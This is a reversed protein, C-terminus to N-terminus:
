LTRLATTLARLKGLVHRLPNPRKVFRRQIVLASRAGLAIRDILGLRGLTAAKNSLTHAFVYFAITQHPQSARWGSLGFKRALSPVDASVGEASRHVAILNTTVIKGKMALSAIWLWDGGLKNPLSLGALDSRRMLGYFTGNDLVQLYFALVREVATEQMLNIAVGERDPESSRAYKIRGCALSVEPATVLIDRCTSVYAADLWDDDALWMFYEGSSRGLVEMFNAIMGNNVSQRIYKLRGDTASLELCVRETADSSANDSVIVEINQYDQGLASHIARTLNTARNYTPIGISILPTNSSHQQTQM